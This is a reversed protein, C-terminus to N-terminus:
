SDLHIFSKVLLLKSNVLILAMSGFSAVESDGLQPFSKSDTSQSLSTMCLKTRGRNKTSNSTHQTVQVSNKLKKGTFKLPLFYM